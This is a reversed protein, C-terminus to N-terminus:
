TSSSRRTGAGARNLADARNLALVLVTVFLALAIVAVLAAVSLTSYYGALEPSSPTGFVPTPADDVLVAARVAAVTAVVVAPLFVLVFIGM